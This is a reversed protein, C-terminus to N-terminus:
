EELLALETEYHLRQTKSLGQRPSEPRKGYETRAFELTEDLSRISDILGLTQAEEAGMTRGDLVDELQAPSLGRGDRIAGVFFRHARLVVQELHALHEKSIETGPTGIGKLQGTRIVHLKVGEADLKKSTDELVALTGISGVEGPENASIHTAGAIAFMAASFAHDVVQALVPKVKAAAKIDESLEYTGAATGGPSDVYLLISSVDEDRAATRIQRRADVTSCGGFKSRGKQMPGQVPVVAVGGELIEMASRDVDDGTRQEPTAVVPLTGAKFQAVAHELFQPEAYWAGMHSRFCEPTHPIDHPQM